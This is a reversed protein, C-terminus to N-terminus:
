YLYKNNRVMHYGPPMSAYKLESRVAGYFFVRVRSKFLEFTRTMEGHGSKVIIIYYNYLSIYICRKVYVLLNKYTILVM